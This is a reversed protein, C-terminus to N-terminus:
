SNSWHGGNATDPDDIPPRHSAWPRANQVRHAADDGGAAPQRAAVPRSTETYRWPPSAEPCEDLRYRKYARVGGTHNPGMVEAHGPPQHDADLEISMTLIHAGGRDYFPIRVTKGM